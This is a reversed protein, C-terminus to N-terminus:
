QWLRRLRDPLLLHCGCPCSHMQNMRVLARRWPAAWWVNGCAIQAKWRLIMSSAGNAVGLMAAIIAVFIHQNLRGSFGLAPMLLIMSVGM